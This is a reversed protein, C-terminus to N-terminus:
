WYIMIRKISSDKNIIYCDPFTMEEWQKYNFTSDFYNLLIGLINGHSTILITQNSYKHELDKLFDLVRNLATVNSEGGPLPYSTNEWLYKIVSKFDNDDVYSSSLVREKLRDDIHIKDFNIPSKYLTDFARKFPSSFYYDINYDNLFYLNSLSHIGRNSLPRNYDDSTYSSHAHRLLIYTNNM